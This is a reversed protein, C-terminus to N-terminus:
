RLLIHVLCACGICLMLMTNLLLIVQYEIDKIFAVPLGLTVGPSKITYKHVITETNITNKNYSVSIITAPNVSIDQQLIVVNSQFYKCINTPINIM